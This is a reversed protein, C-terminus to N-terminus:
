RPTPHVPARKKWVKAAARFSKICAALDLAGNRPAGRGVWSDLVSPLFFPDLLWSNEFCFNSPKPITTSARVLLPHHDSTPRSLSTLSSDPFLSNWDSNFFVRDLWALVPSAQGNTWTFHRDHLPLDFWGMDRILSNFLAALGRDFNSNNKEFPYRILNFDGVIVWPGRILPALALM